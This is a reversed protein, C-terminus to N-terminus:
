FFFTTTDTLCTKKLRSGLNNSGISLLFCAIYNLFYSKKLLLCCLWVLFTAIFQHFILPEPRGM